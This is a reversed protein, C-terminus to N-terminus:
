PGLTGFIKISYLIDEVTIELPMFKRDKTTVSMMAPDVKSYERGFIKSAITKEGTETRGVIVINRESPSGHQQLSTSNVKRAKWIVLRPRFLTYSTMKRSINKTLGTQFSTEHVCTLPLSPQPPPMFTEFRKISLGALLVPKECSTFTPNIQCIVEPQREM